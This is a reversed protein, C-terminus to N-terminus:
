WHQRRKSERLGDYIAVMDLLKATSLHVDVTPFINLPPNPVRMRTFAELTATADKQFESKLVHYSSNTFYFSCDLLTLRSIRSYTTTVWSALTSCHPKPEWARIHNGVNAFWDIMFSFPVLEWLSSIPRDVGLEALVKSMNDEFQFSYLCGARSSVKVSSQRRFYMRALPETSWPLVYRSPHLILDEEVIDEVSREGRATQRNHVQKGRLYDHAQKLDYYTPRLGYRFELYQERVNKKTIKERIARLNFKRLAKFVKVAKIGASVITRVTEDLEGITTILDLKDAGINANAETVAQQELYGYSLPEPEGPLELFTPWQPSMWHDTVINPYDRYQWTRTSAWLPLITVAKQQKMYNCIVEGNKSRTYFRPTPTDWMEDSIEVTCFARNAYMSMQEMQRERHRTPAAYTM